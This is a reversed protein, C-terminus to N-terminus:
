PIACATCGPDKPLAVKKIQLTLADMVLLWGSLSEGVGLLEKITELAQFGGMIGALPGVIGEQACSVEREPIQPVLCRYCPHPAGLYPKFTSLQASFGSIAASVLTKREQFCAEALAFRTAFNDSGDIVIDFARIRERANEKILREPFVEVRCEPNVEHVRDRAAEVKPRGIDAEEFLVQRQLNSLEVRDPEIIGLRGVGAAALYAIAASGLGGAGIVLASSALMKRQGEEGIEPLVIHRAYRRLADPTM